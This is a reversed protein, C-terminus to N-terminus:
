VGNACYGKRVSGGSERLTMAEIGVWDSTLAEINRTDQPRVLEDLYSGLEVRICDGADFRLLYVIVVLYGLRRTRWIRRRSQELFHTELLSVAEVIWNPRVVIEHIEESADFAGSTANKSAHDGVWLKCTICM